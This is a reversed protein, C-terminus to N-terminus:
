TVDPCKRKYLFENKFFTSLFNLASLCNSIKYKEIQPFVHKENPIDRNVLLLNYPSFANYSNYLQSDDVSAKGPRGVNNV